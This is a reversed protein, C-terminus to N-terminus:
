LIEADTLDDSRPDSGDDAAMQRRTADDASAPPGDSEDVVVADEDVFGDDGDVDDDVVEVEGREEVVRPDTEEAALTEEDVFAREVDRVAETLDDGGLHGDFASAVRDRLAYRYRGGGVHEVFGRTRLPRNRGYAVPQDPTGGAAVHADVPDATRERRYHALMRRSIDPLDEVTSRLDAVVAERTGHATTVRDAGDDTATAAAGGTGGSGAGFTV